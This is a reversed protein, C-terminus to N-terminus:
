LRVRGAKEQGIERNKGWTGFYSYKRHFLFKEKTM